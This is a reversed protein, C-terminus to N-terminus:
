GQAAHNVQANLLRGYFIYDPSHEGGATALRRRSRRYLPRGGANSGQAGVAGDPPNRARRLGFVMLIRTRITPWSTAIFTIIVRSYRPAKKRCM